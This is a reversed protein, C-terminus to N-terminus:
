RWFEDIDVRDIEDQIEQFYNSQTISAVEKQRKQHDIEIKLEELQRKLAQERQVRDTIDQVIGEYFLVNGDRDRVRRADIEVWIIEGDRRYARFEFDNVQEREEIEANLRDRDARDVYIEERIDAIAAIMEEPSDYGFIRAMSPNASLIRGSPSSQFIGELANEFIGRYKEEAVRLSEEALKAATIDFMAGDLFLVNGNGDSSARGREDM